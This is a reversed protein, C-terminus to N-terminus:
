HKNMLNVPLLNIHTNTIHTHPRRARKKKKDGADEPRSPEVIIFITLLVTVRM